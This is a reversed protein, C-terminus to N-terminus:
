LGAGSRKARGRDAPRLGDARARGILACAAAGAMMCLIIAIGCHMFYEDPLITIVPDTVPDFLWYDNRFLLRHFGTFFREWDAALLLAAALPIGVCLGATIRLYSRRRRRHMCGIWLLSLLAAAIGTVRIVGFVSRVESFHVAGERSMTFSPFVLTGDGWPSNYAILADYNELIEEASLGTEEELNLIRIDMMYLPRLHVTFLVSASFILLTLCIAALISSIQEPVRSGTRPENGYM